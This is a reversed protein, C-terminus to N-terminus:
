AAVVLLLRLLAPLLIPLLPRLLPLQLRGPRRWRRLRRPRPRLLLRRPPRASAGRGGRGGGVPLVWSGRGILLQQCCVDPLLLLLLQQAPHRVGLPPQSGPQLLQWRWLLVQHAGVHLVQQPGRPSGPQGVQRELLLQPQHHQCCGPRPFHAHVQLPPLLGSPTRICGAGHLRGHHHQAHRDGHLQWRLLHLLLLCRGQLRCSRMPLWPLLLRWWQRWCLRLTRRGRPRQMHQLVLLLLWIGLLLLELLLTNLVVLLLRRRHLSCDHPGLGARLHCGLQRAQKLLQMRRHLCLLTPPLLLLTPGRGLCGHHRLQTSCHPLQLLCLCACARQRPLLQLRLPLWLLLCRWARRQRGWRLLLLQLCWRSLGHLLHLDAAQLQQCVENPV